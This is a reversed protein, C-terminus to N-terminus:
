RGRGGKVAEPAAVTAAAKEEDDSAIPSIPLAADGSPLVLRASQVLLSEGADTVVFDTASLPSHDPGADDVVVDLTVAPPTAQASLVAGSLCLWVFVRLRM